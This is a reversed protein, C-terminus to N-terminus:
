RTVHVEISIFRELARVQELRFTSTEEEGCSASAAALGLRFAPVVWLDDKGEEEATREGRSKERQRQVLAASLTVGSCADGAGITNVLDEASLEPVDFVYTVVRDQGQGEEM